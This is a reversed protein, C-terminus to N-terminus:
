SDTQAQSLKVHQYKCRWTWTAGRFTGWRPPRTQPSAAFCRCNACCRKTVVSMPLHEKPIVKFIHQNVLGEPLSWRKVVLSGSWSFLLDGPKAVNEGSADIDNYVTSGGLGGNLEAIRIVMRGTGSADKTFNRGNVFSALDSLPCPERDHLLREFGAASRSECALVLRANAAIKDDLAGLVEAIAQQEPLTPLPISLEGLTGLNIHPM